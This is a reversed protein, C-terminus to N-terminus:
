RARRAAVSSARSSRRFSRVPLDGDRRCCQVMIDLMFRRSTAPQATKPSSTVAHPPESSEALSVVVSNVSSGVVVDGGVVDLLEVDEVLVDVVDVLEVLEVITCAEVV